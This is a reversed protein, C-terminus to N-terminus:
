LLMQHLLSQRMPGKKKLRLLYFTCCHTVSGDHQAKQKHPVKEHVRTCCRHQALACCKRSPMQAFSNKGGSKGM